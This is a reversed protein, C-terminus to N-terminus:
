NVYKPDPLKLRIVQGSKGLPQLDKGNWKLRIGGANGVVLQMTEDAEWQQKDGPKLLVGQVYKGGDLSVQVWTEQEAEVFLQQKAPDSPPPIQEETTLEKAIAGSQPEEPVTNEERDVNLPSLDQVVSEPSASPSEPKEETMEPETKPDAAQHDAMLTVDPSSPASPVPAGEETKGSAEKQEPLTDEEPQAQPPSAQKQSFDSLLEQQPYTDTRMSEPATSLVTKKKSARDSAFLIGLIAVVVLFLLYLKMQSKKRVPKLWGEFRQISEASCDCTSIARGYEELIPDPDIKIERCYTRLFSRILIPTGIKEFDGEEIFELMKKSIRTRDAIAELTVQAKLREAKLYEGLDKM